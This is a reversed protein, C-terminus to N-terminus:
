EDGCDERLLDKTNEAGRESGNMNGLTYRWCPDARMVLVAEQTSPGLGQLCTENTWVVRTATRHQEGWKVASSMFASHPLTALCASM